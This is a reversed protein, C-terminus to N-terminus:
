KEINKSFCELLCEPNLEYLVRLLIPKNKYLKNKLTSRRTSMNPTIIFTRNLLWSIFGKYNNSIHVISRLDDILKDFDDRLLLYQERAEEATEPVFRVHHINLSYKNILDEIKRAKRRSDSKSLEFEKFFVNMPITQVYPSKKIKLKYLYNMPCVLDKNIRDKNFGRRIGKWFEPYKNKDIDIVVKLRNIEEALDMDYSKKASDISIQMQKIELEKDQTDKTKM